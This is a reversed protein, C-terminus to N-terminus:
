DAFRTLFQSAGPLTSELEYWYCKTFNKVLYM